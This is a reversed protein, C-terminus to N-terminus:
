RQRRKKGKPRLYVYISVDFELDLAECVKQLLEPTPQTKGTELHCISVQMIKLMDALQQQSLGREHRRNM